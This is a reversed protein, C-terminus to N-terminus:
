EGRRVPLASRSSGQREYVTLRYGNRMLARASTTIPGGPSGISRKHHRLYHQSSDELIENAHDFDGNELATVCDLLRGPGTHDIPADRMSPTLPLNQIATRM